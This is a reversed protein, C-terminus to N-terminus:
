PAKRLRRWIKLSPGSAGIIDVLECEQENFSDVEIASCLENVNHVTALHHQIVAEALLAHLELPRRTCLDELTEQGRILRLSRDKRLFSTDVPCRLDTVVARDDTVTFFEYAKGHIKERVKWFHRTSTQGPQEM